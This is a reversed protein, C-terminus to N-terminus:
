NFPFKWYKRYGYFDLSFSSLRKHHKFHGRTQTRDQWSNGLGCQGRHPPHPKTFICEHPLDQPLTGPLHCIESRQNANIKCKSVSESSCVTGKGTGESLNGSRLILGKEEVRLRCGLKGPLAQKSKRDEGWWSLKCEEKCDRLAGPSGLEDSREEQDRHRSPMESIGTKNKSNMHTRLATLQDRHRHGAEPILLM